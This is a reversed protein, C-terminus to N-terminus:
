GTLGTDRGAGVFVRDTASAHAAEAFAMTRLQLLSRSVAGDLVSEDGRGSHRIQPPSWPLHARLYRDLGAALGPGAIRSAEGGLVITGPDVVTILGLIGVGIHRALQDWCPDDLARDNLAALWAFDRDHHSGVTRALNWGGALSQWGADDRPAFFPTIATGSVPLYGIEGAAGHTGRRLSGDLVLAAGIGHGLALLVFDNCGVAVGDHAEAYARLNVENEIIVHMGLEERLRAVTGPSWHELDRAYHLQGTVPDVAGPLAMVLCRHEYDDLPGHSRVADIIQGVLDGTFDLPVSWRDQESSGLRARAIHVVGHLIMVGVSAGLHPHLSFIAARPGRQIREDIGSQIVVGAHQLREVVKRTSPKSLGSLEALRSRTLPGHTALFDCFRRDNLSRMVEHPPSVPM